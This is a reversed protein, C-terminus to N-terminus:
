KHIRVLPRYVAWGIKNHYGKENLKLQINRVSVTKGEDKLENILELVIKKKRQYKQEPSIPGLRIKTNAYIKPISPSDHKFEDRKALQLKNLQEQIEEVQLPVADLNKEELKATSYNFSSTLNGPSHGLVQQLFINLNRNIYESYRKFASVGYFKRMTQTSIKKDPFDKKVQGLVDNLIKQNLREKKTYEDAIVVRNETTQKLFEKLQQVSEVFKKSTINILPRYLGINGGEISNKRRKAIGEVFVTRNIVNQPIKDLSDHGYPIEGEKLERYSSLHALEIPRSGSALSLAIFRKRYNKADANETIYDLLRDYKIQIPNRNRTIVKKRANEKAKLFAEKGIQLYQRSLKYEQSEKDFLGRLYSLLQTRTNFNTQSNGLVHFVAKNVLKLLEAFRKGQPKTLEKALLVKLLSMGTVRKSKLGKPTYKHKFDYRDLIYKKLISRERDKRQEYKLRNDKLLNRLFTFLNFSM